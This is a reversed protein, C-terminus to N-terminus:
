FSVERKLALTHTLLFLSLFTVAIVGYVVSLGKLFEVGHILTDLVTDRAWDPMDKSCLDCYHPTCSISFTWQTGEGSVRPLRSPFAIGFPIVYSLAMVGLFLFDGFSERPAKAAESVRAEAGKTEARLEQNEM